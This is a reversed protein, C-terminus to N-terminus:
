SCYSVPSCLDGGAELNNICQNRLDNAVQTKNESDILATANQYVSAGYVEVVSHDASSRGNPVFEARMEEGELGNRIDQVHDMELENLSEQTVDQNFKSKPFVDGLAKSIEAVSPGRANSNKDGTASQSTVHATTMIEQLDVDGSSTSLDLADVQYDEESTDMAMNESSNRDGFRSSSATDM